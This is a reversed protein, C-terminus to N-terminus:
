GKERWAFFSKTTKKSVKHFYNQRFCFVSHKEEVLPLKPINKLQLIQLLVDNEVHFRSSILFFTMNGRSFTPPFFTLLPSGIDDVYPWIKGM